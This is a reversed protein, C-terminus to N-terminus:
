EYEKPVACIFVFPESDSRNKYQHVENPLVMAFDGKKIETEEGSESVMAGHGEIIFNLHEFDHKHYPTHGKPGVTFVRFSFVPAGDERSLPVQKFVNKAGEMTVNVKKVDSLSVKKM